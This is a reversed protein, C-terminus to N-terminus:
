VWYSVRSRYNRMAVLALAWGVVTIGGVILWSFGSVYQGILPARVIQVFHFLPNANIYPLAWSANHRAGGKALQDIPWVIPTLYFLLQILSSIVQPIDRYRTSIIGLLLTVWGANIALLLFGPIALLSSWGIGPHCIGTFNPECIGSNLTYEHSLSGFFIAVVIVYVILNHALMLTQRWVTRLVYVSLPAPLQKILGENAIFTEMGESLCGSIFGWIIFGTSIYPLFTSTHLGFLQSYLLGLGLAIVGQSITIWFPGIVSRRYRQKIDQWGLHGWLERAHFGAKIDAFARAFTRSDSMPPVSTEVPSGAAHVTSTAHM